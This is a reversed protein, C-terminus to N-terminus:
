SFSFLKFIDPLFVTFGVYSQSFYVMETSCSAYAFHTITSNIICNTAEKHNRFTLLCYLPGKM